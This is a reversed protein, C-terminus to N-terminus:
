QDALLKYIERKVQALLERVRNAQELNGSRAIQTVADNLQTLQSRAGNETLPQWLLRFRSSLAYSYNSNVIISVM